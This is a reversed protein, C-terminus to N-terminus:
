TLGLHPWTSIFVQWLILIQVCFMQLEHLGLTQTVLRYGQTHFGWRGAKGMVGYSNVRVGCPVHPLM